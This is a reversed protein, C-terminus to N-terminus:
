DLKSGSKRLNASYKPISRNLTDGYDREPPTQGHKGPSRPLADPRRMRVIRIRM